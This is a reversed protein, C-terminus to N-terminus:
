VYIDGYEDIIVVCNQYTGYKYKTGEQILQKEIEELTMPDGRLHNNVIHPLKNLLFLM